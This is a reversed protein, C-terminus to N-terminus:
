HKVFTASFQRTNSKCYAHLLYFGPHLMKIDLTQLSARSELQQAYVISGLQNYIYLKGLFSDNLEFNLQDSGPNPFIKLPLTRFNYGSSSTSCEKRFSVEDDDELTNFMSLLDGSGKLHYDLWPILYRATIEQQKERSISPGPPSFSEGLDCAFNSNAFYCHGGGTIYIQVKCHTNAAEYMPDQHNAPPTVGDNEGSFMLLPLGTLQGSALIASPNTEASAFGIYTDFDEEGLGAALLAAGGGMSHGAIAAKNSLRANLFYSADTAAQLRIYNALFRIDRGFEIHSPAPIISTETGPLVVVYGLPVLTEALNLYANPTMALGHGIIVIPHGTGVPETDNGASEAPYHIITLVARNNRSSDVYIHEVTGIQFQASVSFFQLLLLSFILFKFFKM